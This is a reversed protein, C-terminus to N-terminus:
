ARLAPREARARSTKRKARRRRREAAEMDGIVDAMAAHWPNVFGFAGSRKSGTSLQNGFMGSRKEM